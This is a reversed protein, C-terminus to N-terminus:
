KDRPNRGTISQYEDQSQDMGRHPPIIVKSVGNSKWLNTTALEKTYSFDLAQM